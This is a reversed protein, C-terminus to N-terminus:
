LDFTGAFKSVNDSVWKEIENLSLGGAVLELIDDSIEGDAGKIQRVVAELEEWEIRFGARLAIRIIEGKEAASVQRSLESDTSLRALFALADKQSM